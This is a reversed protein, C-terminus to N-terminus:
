LEIGKRLCSAATFYCSRVIYLMFLISYKSYVISSNYKVAAGLAKMEISRDKIIHLFPLFAITIHHITIIFTLFYNYAGYQCYIQESLKFM